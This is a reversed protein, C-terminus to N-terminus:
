GDPALDAVHRMEWSDGFFQPSTRTTTSAYSRKRDKKRRMFGAEKLQEVDFLKKETLMRKLSGPLKEYGDAIVFVVLDHKGFNLPGDARMREHNEM